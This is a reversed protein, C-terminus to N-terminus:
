GHHPPVQRRLWEDGTGPPRRDVPDVADDGLQDLGDGFIAELRRRRAAEDIASRQPVGGDHAGGPEVADHREESVQAVTGLARAPSSM